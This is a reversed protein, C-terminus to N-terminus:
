EARCSLLSATSKWSRFGHSTAPSDHGVESFGDSGEAKGSAVFKAEIPEGQKWLKLGTIVAGPPLGIEARAEQQETKSDNKFVYTWEITSSLTNAHVVGSLYSRSMALGPIREGVVHRSLYDDPMSSLDTNSIDKFSYPKGTLAFYLEHQTSSKLPIFLGALGAAKQDSCEMLLEREPDLARLEALGLKREIPAKSAAKKEALRISWPRFEAGIVTILSLIAGVATFALVQLRSNKFDRTLRIRNVIYACVIGSITAIIALGIFGGAFSSGIDDVLTSNDAFLGAVCIGAVLLCSMISAGMSIGRRLSYRLNNNCIASWAIYNALPISILLLLEAITELPHNLMVLTLRKPM